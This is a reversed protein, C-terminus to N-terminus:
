YSGRKRLLSIMHMWPVDRPSVDLLSPLGCNENISQLWGCVMGFFGSGRLALDAVVYENGGTDKEV